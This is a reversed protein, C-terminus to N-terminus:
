EHVLWPLATSDSDDTRAATTTTPNFDESFEEALTDGPPMGTPGDGSMPTGSPSHENRHDAPEAEAGPDTPAPTPTDELTDEHAPPQEGRDTATDVDAMHAHDHLQLVMSSFESVTSTGPNTM